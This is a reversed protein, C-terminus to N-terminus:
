QRVWNFTHSDHHPRWLLYRGHLLLLIEPLGVTDDLVEYRASVVEWTKGITPWCRGIVAGDAGLLEANATPQDSTEGNLGALPGFTLGAISPDKSVINFHLLDPHEITAASLPRGNAVKRSRHLEVAPEGDWGNSISAAFLNRISPQLHWGLKGRDDRVGDPGFFQLAVAGTEDTLAAHRGHKDATFDVEYIV